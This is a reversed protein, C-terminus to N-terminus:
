VRLMIPILCQYGCHAQQYLPTCIVGHKTTRISTQGVLNKGAFKMAIADIKNSYSVDIYELRGRESVTPNHCDQRAFDKAEGGLVDLLGQDMPFPVYPGPLGFSEGRALDLQTDVQQYQLGVLWYSQTPTGANWCSVPAYPDLQKWAWAPVM